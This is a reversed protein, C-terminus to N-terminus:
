FTAEELNEYSYLNRVYLTGDPRLEGVLKAPAGKLSAIWEAETGVFGLSVAEEYASDGTDGKKGKFVLYMLDDLTAAVAPEETTVIADIVPEGTTIVATIDNSDSV